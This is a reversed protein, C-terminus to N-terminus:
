LCLHQPCESSGGLFVVTVFLYLVYMLLPGGIGAALVMLCGLGPDRHKRIQAM